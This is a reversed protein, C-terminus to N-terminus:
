HLDTVNASMNWLASPVGDGDHALVTERIPMKHVVDGTM